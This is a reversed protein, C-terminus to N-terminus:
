KKYAEVIEFIDSVSQYKCLVKLFSRIQPQFVRDIVASKEKFEVVPNELAKKLPASNKFIEEMELIVDEPVALEYLVEAYNIAAQTM